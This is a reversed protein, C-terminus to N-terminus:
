HCSKCTLVEFAVVGFSWMDMSPEMGIQKPGQRVTRTLEPCAFRGANSPVAPEGTPSASSLGILKWTSDASFWMIHSPDLHGHVIGQSHICELSRLIQVVCDGDATQSPSPKRFPPSRQARKHADVLPVYIRRTHLLGKRAGSLSATGSCRHSDGASQLRTQSPRALSQARRTSEPLRCSSASPQLVKLLSRPWHVTRRRLPLTASRPQAKIPDPVQWPRARLANMSSQHTIYKGAFLVGDKFLSLKKADFDAANFGNEGVDATPTNDNIALQLSRSNSSSPVYRIDAPPTSVCAPANLQSLSYSTNNRVAKKHEVCVCM